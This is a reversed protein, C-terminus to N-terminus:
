VLVCSWTYKKFQMDINYFDIYSQGINKLNMGIMAGFSCVHTFMSGLIFYGQWSVSIIM